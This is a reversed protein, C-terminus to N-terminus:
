SSFVAQCELCQVPNVESDEINFRKPSPTPPVISTGSEALLDRPRKSKIPQIPTTKYNIGNGEAKKKIIRKTRQDRTSNIKVTRSVVMEMNKACSEINHDMYDMMIAHEDIVRKIGALKTDLSVDTPFGDMMIAHEDVVGKIYALKKDISRVTPGVKELHKILDSPHANESTEEQHLINGKM